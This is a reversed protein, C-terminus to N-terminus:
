DHADHLHKGPAFATVSNVLQRDAAHRTVRKRAVRHAICSQALKEPALQRGLGFRDLYRQALHDFRGIGYLEPGYALIREGRDFLEFGFAGNCPAVEIEPALHTDARDRDAADRGGGQTLDGDPNRAYDTARRGLTQQREPFFLLSGLHLTQRIAM